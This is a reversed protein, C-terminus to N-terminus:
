MKEEVDFYDDDLHKQAVGSAMAAKAVAKTV